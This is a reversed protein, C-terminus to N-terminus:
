AARRSGRSAELVKEGEYLEFVFRAVSAQQESGPHVVLISKGSKLLAAYQLLEDSRFRLLRGAPPGPRRYEQTTDPGKAVVESEASLLSISNGAVGQTELAHM